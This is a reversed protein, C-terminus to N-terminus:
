YKYCKRVRGARLRVVAQAPGDLEQAPTSVARVKVAKKRASTVRKGATSDVGSGKGVKEKELCKEVSARKAKPKRNVVVTSNSPEASSQAAPLSPAPHLSAETQPAASLAPGTPQSGVSTADASSGTQTGTVSAIAPRETVWRDTAM